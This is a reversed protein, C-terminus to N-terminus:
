AGPRRLTDRLIMAGLAVGAVAAIPLGILMLWGLVGMTYLAGGIDIGAVLCPHVSGEDVACGTWTAIQYALYVSLLPALGLLLVGGVVIYGARM